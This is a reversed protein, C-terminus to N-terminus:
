LGGTAARHPGRESWLARETGKSASSRDNQESEKDALNM